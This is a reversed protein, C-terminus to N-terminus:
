VPPTPPPTLVIQNAWKGITKVILIVKQRDVSDVCTFEYRFTVGFSTLGEIDEVQVPPTSKHDNLLDYLFVLDHTRPFEVGLCILVAKLYKEIAQEAHFGWISDSVDYDLILKNLVSEDESAKQLFHVAQDRANM